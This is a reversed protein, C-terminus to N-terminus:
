ADIERKIRSYNQLIGYKHVATSMQRIPLQMYTTRFKIQYLSTSIYTPQFKTFAALLVIGAIEWLEVTFIVVM